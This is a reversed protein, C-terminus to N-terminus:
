CLSVMNLNWLYVMIKMKIIKEKKKLNNVLEM